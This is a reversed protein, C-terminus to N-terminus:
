LGSFTIGIQYPRIEPGFGEKILTTISYSGFLSLNGYGARLTGSLRTSNFFRKSTEKLTYANLTNGSSNQWTKGKTHANVMTGVKAGIAFKWSRDMDEPKLAFRLEVPAELYATTLKYKKFHNTDAVDRFPLASASSKVDVTYKDFYINSSSVGAGIGVSFRPDTKFPFDFMFYANFGRSLGKIRISDPAGAWNDIGIQFMFHDASRNKMVVKSWDKKPKQPKNETSDQAMLQFGTALTLLVILIKKMFM